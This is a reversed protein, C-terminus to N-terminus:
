NKGSGSCASEVYYNTLALINPQHSLGLNPFISYIFGCIAGTILRAAHFAVSLTLAQAPEMQQHLIAVMSYDQLGFGNITIPMQAFISIAPIYSFLTSVSVSINLGKALAFHAVILLLPSVLSLILCVVLLTPRKKYKVLYRQIRWCTLGLRHQPRQRLPLSVIIYFTLLLASIGLACLWSLFRLAPILQAAMQLSIFTLALQGIIGSWRDLMVSAWAQSIRGNERGLDLARKIDGSGTIFSNFFYGACYYYLARKFSIAAQFPTNLLFIWKGSNIVVTLLLIFLAVVLWGLSFHASEILSPWENFPKDVLRVTLYLLVFTATLKSLLAIVKFAKSKLQM